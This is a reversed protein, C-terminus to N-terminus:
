ELSVGAGAVGLLGGLWVLYPGAGRGIPAAAVVVVLAPVAPALAWALTAHLVLLAGGLAGGFMTPTSASRIAPRHRPRGRRRQTEDRGRVQVSAALDSWCGCRRVVAPNV